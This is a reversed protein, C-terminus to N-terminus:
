RDVLAIRTIRRRAMNEVRLMGVPTKVSDGLRPVRGLSDVVIEALTETTFPDDEDPDLDLFELLEDYRVEARASVRGSGLVEITPREHELSDELEGFVEEVIDELTLIGATGGYEDSVILIQTRAERMRQLARDLSLTEPVFEPPRAVQRVELGQEIARLIDQVFVMGIVEDIDGECVPIRSHPVHAFKSLLEERPTSAELWQVDLRHIMVDDVQLRDLRLAREVLGAEDKALSGMAEGSQVLLLLEERSVNEGSGEGGRKGPGIFLNASAQLLWVVPAVLRVMPLIAPALALAWREPHRIVVFKPVLESLVVLPFAVLLISVTQLLGIPVFDLRARIFATILPETVSGLAIGVLTIGLQLAAVTKDLRELLGLAAAAGRRKRRALAQISSRRVSVMAYEGAVFFANLALFVVSVLATLWGSM